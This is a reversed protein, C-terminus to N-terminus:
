NITHAFKYTESKYEFLRTPSKPAPEHKLYLVDVETICTGIWM